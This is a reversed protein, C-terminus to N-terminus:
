WITKWNDGYLRGSDIDVSLGRRHRLIVEKIRDKSAGIINLEIRKKSVPDYLIAYRKRKGYVQFGGWICGQSEVVSKFRGMISRLHKAVKNVLLVEKIHAPREIVIDKRRFIHKLKAISTAMDEIKQQPLWEFRLLDKIVIDPDTANKYRLVCLGLFEFYSEKRSDAQQIRAKEHIGGDIELVVGIEKLYFDAIYPPIIKQAKHKIGRDSLARSIKLESATSKKLLKKRFDNLRDITSIQQKDPIFMRLGRIFFALWTQFAAQAQM